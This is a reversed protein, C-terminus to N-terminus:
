PMSRRPKAEPELPAEDLLLLGRQTEMVVYQRLEVMDYVRLIRGNPFSTEMIVLPKFKEEERPKVRTWGSSLLGAEFAEREARPEENSAKITEAWQEEARRINALREPSLAPGDAVRPAGKRPPESCGALALMAIITWTRM